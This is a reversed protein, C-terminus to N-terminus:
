KARVMIIQAAAAISAGGGRDAVAKEIDRDAADVAAVYCARDKMQITLPNRTGDICLSRAAARVRLRLLNVAASRSLDLDAYSVRVSPLPEGSIIVPPQAFAASSGLSLIGIIWKM